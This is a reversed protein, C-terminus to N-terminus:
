IRYSEIIIFILIIVWLGCFIIALWIYGLLLCICCIAITITGFVFCHVLILEVSDIVKLEYYISLLFKLINNM